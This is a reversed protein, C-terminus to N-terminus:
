HIAFRIQIDLKRFFRLREFFEIKDRAISSPAYTIVCGIKTAHATSFAKLKSMASLRSRWPRKDKFVKIVKWGKSKAYEKCSREQEVMNSSKAFARVYIVM